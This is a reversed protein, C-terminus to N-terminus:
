PTESSNICLTLSRFNVDSSWDDSVDAPIDPASAWDAGAEYAMKTALGRLQMETIGPKIIEHYKAFISEIISAIMRLCEVEDKTKLKRAGLM